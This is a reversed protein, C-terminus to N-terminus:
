VPFVRQAPDAIRRQLEAEIVADDYVGVPDARTAMYKRAAAFELLWLDYIRRLEALPEPHEDVRLSLDPYEETGYILIGASQQGRADGGAEQGAQMAAMLREAFPLESREYHALTAEVVDPGALLNGAVSVGDGLRHGSWHRCASGTFAVVAGTRDVVHVQRHERGADAEVLAAVSEQASAGGALARLGRPGYTPNITAQTSLAGTDASVSLCLGAAAVFRTAVMAGLAGSEADRAVISWTM